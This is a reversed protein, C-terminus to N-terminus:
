HDVAHNLAQLDAQARAADAELTVQYSSGPAKSTAMEIGVLAKALAKERGSLSGGWSVQGLDHLSVTVATNLAGSASTLQAASAGPPVSAVLSDGNELTPTIWGLVQRHTFASTTTPSETHVATGKSCGALLAM